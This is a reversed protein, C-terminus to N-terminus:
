GINLPHLSFNQYNRRLFIPIIETDNLINEFEIKSFNIVQLFYDETIELEELQEEIFYKVGFKFKPMLKEKM